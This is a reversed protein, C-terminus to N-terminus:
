ISESEVVINQRKKENRSNKNLVKKKVKMMTMKNANKSKIKYGWYKSM